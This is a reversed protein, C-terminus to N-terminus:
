LCPPLAAVDVGLVWAGVEGEAKLELQGGGAVAAHPNAAREFAFASEGAHLDLDEVVGVVLVLAPELGPLHVAGEVADGGGM